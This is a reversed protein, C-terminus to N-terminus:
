LALDIAKFMGFGKIMIGYTIASPKLGDSIMNKYLNIAKNCDGLKFCVDIVCNYLVEDLKILKNNKIEEL